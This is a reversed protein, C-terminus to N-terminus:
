SIVESRFMSHFGLNMNILISKIVQIITALLTSLFTYDAISAATRETPINVM